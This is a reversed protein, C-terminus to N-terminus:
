RSTNGLAHIGIASGAQGRQACRVQQLNILSRQAASRLEIAKDHHLRAGKSEEALAGLAAECAAIARAAASFGRSAGSTEVEM